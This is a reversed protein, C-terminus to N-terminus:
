HFIPESLWFPLSVGRRYAKLAAPSSNVRLNSYTNDSNQWREHWFVAAKLRPFNMMRELAGKIYEAKDGDRPFEGIGWETLMIPKSADLDCLQRFPWDFLSEFSTWNEAKFQKGYVSIGLWDVYEPGPYYEAIANWADGPYSYNMAHFIWLINTAGRRRTRNVVYRYAKKFTEPGEYRKPNSGPVVAGAGYFYGSWPFWLGNPENCFSVMLPQGFDRAADAWLDIYADWKGALINTLSFREKAIYADPSSEEKFEKYPHDWPSWFILPVSGHKSIISVAATPFSQKGWYSSSAVIAQHKGVLTEFNEIGDLTVADESEGFEIYAGTYAGAMPVVLKM